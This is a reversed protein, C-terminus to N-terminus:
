DVKDGVAVGGAEVIGSQGQSGAQVRFKFGSFLTADEGQPPKDPYLYTVLYRYDRNPGFVGDGAPASQYDGVLNDWPWYDTRRKLETDDGEDALDKATALDESTARPRGGAARFPDFGEITDPLRVRYLERPREVVWWSRRGNMIKSAETTAAADNVNFIREAQQMNGAVRNEFDSSNLAWVGFLTLLLLVVLTLVLIYGEENRATKNHINLM